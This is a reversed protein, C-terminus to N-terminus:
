NEPLDSVGRNQVLKRLLQSLDLPRGSHIRNTQAKGPLASLPPVKPLLERPAQSSAEPDDNETPM